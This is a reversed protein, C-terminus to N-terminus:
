SCGCSARAAQKETSYQSGGYLYSGGAGKIQIIFNHSGPNPGGYCEIYQTYQNREYEIKETKYIKYDLTSCPNVKPQTTRSSTTQNTEKSTNAFPIDILKIDIVQHQDTAIYRTGYLRHVDTLAAAEIGLASSFAIRGNSWFWAIWSEHNHFGAAMYGVGSKTVFTGEDHMKNRSHFTKSWITQGSQDIRTLLMKSNAKGTLIAGNDEIPYFDKYFTQFRTRRKHPDKLKILRRQTLSNNITILGEQMNAFSLLAFQDGQVRHISRGSFSALKRGSKERQAKQYILGVREISHLKNYKITVQTGVVIYGGDKTPIIDNLTTVEYSKSHINKPKVRWWKEIRGSDDFVVIVASRQSDKYVRGVAIYSSKGFPILSNLEGRYQTLIKRQWRTTGSLDYLGLWLRSGNDSETGAMVLEGKLRNHYSKRIFADYTAKSEAILNNQPKPATNSVRESNLSLYPNFAAAFFHM